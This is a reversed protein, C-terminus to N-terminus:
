RAGGHHARHASRAPDDVRIEMLLSASDQEPLMSVAVDGAIPSPQGKRTACLLPPGRVLLRAGYAGIPIKSLQRPEDGSVDLIRLDTGVVAYLTTGVLKMLDPEDIGVEQM